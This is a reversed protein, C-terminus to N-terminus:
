PLRFFPVQYLWWHLMVFISRLTLAVRLLITNFFCNEKLIIGISPNVFVFSRTHIGDLAEKDVEAGDVGTAAIEEVAENDGVGAAVEEEAAEDDYEAGATGADEATAKDETSILNKYWYICRLLFFFVTKIQLCLNM